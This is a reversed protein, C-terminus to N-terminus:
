FTVRNEEKKKKLSPVIKKLGSSEKQNVMQTNKASRQIIWNSNANNASLNLLKSKKLVIGVSITMEIKKDM